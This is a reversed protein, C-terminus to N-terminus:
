GLMAGIGVLATLVCLAAALLLAQTSSAACEKEFRNVRLQNQTLNM